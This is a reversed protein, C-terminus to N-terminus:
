APAFRLKLGIRRLVLRMWLVSIGIGAAILVVTAVTSSLLFAPVPQTALLAGLCAALILFIVAWLMTADQFFRHLRPHKGSTPHRLSIMEAALRECLPSSGRATRAFLIFLCLNAVPFHLLFIWLNGTAVAIASQVTLVIASITLLGPVDGTALKRVAATLWIVAVGAILGANRGGLWGAIAFAAVPLGVSETLNWATMRLLRLPRPLELTEPM